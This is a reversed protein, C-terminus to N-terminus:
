DTLDLVARLATADDNSPKVEFGLSRCFRAMGANEALVEGELLGIGTQRAYDILHEMLARGIGGRQCDSRVLVAFEARVNGPDAALRSVGLLAGGAELAVFAMARAYDIQTLRAIQDHDAHSIAGFFRRHMDAQSLKGLFEPYLAEDSPRIPRLRLDCGEVTVMRDWETPYPRIAFRPNPGGGGNPGSRVVIRADLAIVGDADALLPNIDLERIEPIDASLHSLRTLALAVGALDAPARDRYGALLKSVRTRGIMEAALAPDLPPLALARDAVVEVSTGGAGFLVIPGFVRDESLGLILEVAEPRCIMPQVVVGDITAKPAKEAIDFLMARAAERAEDASVVNLRVGGVDSKHSLDRSLIKIALREVGAKGLLTAAIAEAEEPSGAIQTEVTPIGYAALIAKAEPETLIARGARIADGVIVRATDRDPSVSEDTVPPTRMLQRQTARHRALYAFGEVAQAPTRYVPLGAAQLIRGGDSATADGMWCTLVPKLSQGNANAITAVVAEAAETASALATPCNIVLVGDAEEAELLAMLAQRYRRPGADGIIDVPNGHSWNAPLVKELRRTTAESLTALRVGHRAAADAALVGAGGGNTLVALRDSAVPRHRALAEAADFLEELDDVRLIGARRFAADYVDDAGALAGTHSAAARAAEVSRGAKVVIVPKLRAAARAASMFKRADTVHELYMLVAKTERDTALYDLLDGVDVDSIDGMSATVSFGIGRAEAWDIMATVIAGSQSLLALPGPHPSLHAFSADLGIGPVQLGLCNPGLIRLCFPRAEELMRARLDADFGATIVIGARAGREGLQRITDPVHRPPIAIVGLDPAEPLDAIRRHCPSAGIRDYKPNVLDVAGGFGAGTLRQMVAHGLAGDRASAGILAVRKPALLHVLNRISM